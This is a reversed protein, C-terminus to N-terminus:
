QRFAPRVHSLQDLNVADDLRLFNAVRHLQLAHEAAHVEELTVLAGAEAVGAFLELVSGAIAPSVRLGMKHMTTSPQQPASRHAVNGLAGLEGMM